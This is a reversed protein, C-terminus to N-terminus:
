FSLGLQFRILMEFQTFVGRIGRNFVKRMCMYMYFRVPRSPLEVERDSGEESVGDDYASNHQLKPKQLQEQQQTQYYTLTGNTSRRNLAASQNERLKSGISAASNYNPSTIVSRLRHHPPVYVAGYSSPPRDKMALLSPSPSPSPKFAIPKPHSPAAAFQLSPSPLFLFALSPSPM